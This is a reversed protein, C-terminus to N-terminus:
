LKVEVGCSEALALAKTILDDRKELHPIIDSCWYEGKDSPDVPGKLTFEMAEVAAKLATRAQDLQENLASAVVEMARYREIYGDSDLQADKQISTIISKNIWGCGEEQWQEPTKM